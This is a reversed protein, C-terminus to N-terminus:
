NFSGVLEFTQETILYKVIFVLIYRFRDNCAIIVMTWTQKYILRIPIAVTSGDDELQMCVTAAERHWSQKM